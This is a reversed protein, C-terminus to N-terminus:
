FRIKKLFLIYIKILVLLNCKLVDATYYRNESGFWSVQTTKEVKGLFVERSKAPGPEKDTGANREQLGSFHCKRHTDWSSRWSPAAEGETYGQAPVDLSLWSDCAQYINLPASSSDWIEYQFPLLLIFPAARPEATRRRELWLYGARHGPSRLFHTLHFRQSRWCQWFDELSVEGWHRPAWSSCCNCVALLSMKGKVTM